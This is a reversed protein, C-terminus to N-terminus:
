KAKIYELKYSYNEIEDGYIEKVAVTVPYNSESYTYKQEIQESYETIEGTELNKYETVSQMLVSNSVHSYLSLDYEIFWAKANVQSFFGNKNDYTYTKVEHSESPNNVITKVYYDERTVQGANNATYNSYSIGYDYSSHKKKLSGNNNIILTDIEDIETQSDYKFEKVFVSDEKYAYTTLFSGSEGVTSETKKVPNGNSDYEYVAQSVSEGDSEDFEFEEVKILRNANDYYYRMESDGSDETVKSLLLKENNKDDGSGNDDDSCSVFVVLGLLLFLALLNNKTM